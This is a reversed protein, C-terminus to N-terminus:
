KRADATRHWHAIAEPKLSSYFREWAKPLSQNDSMGHRFLVLISLVNTLGFVITAVIFALMSPSRGSGEHMNCPLKDVYRGSYLPNM